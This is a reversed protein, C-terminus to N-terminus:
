PKLGKLDEYDRIVEVLAAALVDLSHGDNLKAALIIADAAATLAVNLKARKARYVVLAAAAQDPTGQKALDVEHQRDYLLLGEAATTVVVQATQITDARQSGACGVQSGAGVGLLLVLVMVSARNTAAKVTSRGYTYGFTSLLALGAGILRAWITGDAVLGTTLTIGLIATLASLAFESTQWGPRAAQTTANANAEAEQPTATTVTIPTTIEAM